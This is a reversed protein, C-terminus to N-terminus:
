ISVAMEMTKPNFSQFPQVRTANRADVVAIQAIVAATFAKCVAKAADDLMLHSFDETIDPQTFGTATMILALRVGTGPRGALEGEVWASPCFAPDSVYEAITGLHNHMSSVLFIGHALFDKLNELNLPRMTFPLKEDLFTWFRKLDADASTADESKYYLDVYDNAFTRCIQWYEIGDEHFPLTVTDISQRAKREPFTEYKFNALGYEWTQKMGKDTLAYARQLMGKPWFLSRGAGFNIAVSRFTFPKLLRRVPHAPPLQERISTVMYNAVTAHIGLLHDVATVKTQLSGRFCLKAYEWGDEGPRSTVGGRIIKTVKGKATFYADAGYKAYGPRVELVNMFDLCIGYYSGDDHAEPLKMLLHQGLGNFALLELARDSYRDNWHVNVRPWMHGLKSMVYREMDEGPLWTHKFDDIFPAHDRLFNSQKIELWPQKPWDEDETPIEISTQILTLKPLVKQHKPITLCSEVFPRDWTAQKKGILKIMLRTWLDMRADDYLDATGSGVLEKAQPLSLFHWDEDSGATGFTVVDDLTRRHFGVAMLQGIPTPTSSKEELQYNQGPVMQWIFDFLSVVFCQLVLTTLGEGACRRAIGISHPCFKYMMDPATVDRAGDKFADPDVPTTSADQPAFRDPNFTHPDSWVDPHKSTVELGATALCGKPVKFSGNATSIELDDTARGYLQTPGAVYFRKVELIFHHMYGLDAFHSWRDDENPYKALFAERAASVKERIAPLEICATVANIVLCTVGGLGAFLAHFLELNLEEDSLRGDAVLVEVVTPLPKQAAVRAKAERVAPRILEEVVQTRADMGTTDPKRASKRISSVFAEVLERYEDDVNELGLLTAMFVHFVMKKCSLALSLSGGRAAWAAHDHQIIERIKPKYADLKEPTFAVLLAAKRKAHADDDLTSVVAGLLELIGTPFASARVIKGEKVQTDYALLAEPGCFGMIKENVLSSEMLFVDGYHDRCDMMATRPDKMFMIMKKLSAARRLSPAAGAPTSAQSGM